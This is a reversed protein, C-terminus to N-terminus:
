HNINLVISSYQANVGGSVIILTYTSHKYFFGVLSETDDSHTSPPYCHENKLAITLQTDIILSHEGSSLLNSVQLLSHNLFFLVNATETLFQPESLGCEM